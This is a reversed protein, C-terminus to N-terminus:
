TLTTNNNKAERVAMATYQKRGYATFLLQETTTFIYEVTNKVRPRILCYTRTLYWLVHPLLLLTQIGSVLPSTVYWSVRFVAFRRPRESIVTLPSKIESCPEKRGALGHAAIHSATSLGVGIRTARYEARFSSDASDAWLDRSRKCSQDNRSRRRVHSRYADRTTGVSTAFLCGRSDVQV